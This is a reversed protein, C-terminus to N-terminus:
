TYLFLFALSWSVEVEVVTFCEDKWQIYSTLLLSSCATWCWIMKLHFGIWEVM